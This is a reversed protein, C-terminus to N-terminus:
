LLTKTHSVLEVTRELNNSSFVRPHIRQHAQLARFYPFFKLCSICSYEGDPHIISKGFKHSKSVHGVLQRNSNFRKECKECPFNMLEATSEDAPQQIQALIIDNDNEVIANVPQQVENLTTDNTTEVEVSATPSQQVEDLINENTNTLISNSPEQVNRISHIRQHGQLARLFKFRKPCEGCPFNDPLTVNMGRKHSKSKHGVLQKNTEFSRKCMNCQFDVSVANSEVAPQEVQDLEKDTDNEM